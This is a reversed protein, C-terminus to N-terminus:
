VRRIWGWVSSGSHHWSDTATLDELSTQWAEAALRLITGFLPTSTAEPWLDGLRGVRDESGSHYSIRASGLGDLVIAPQGDRDPAETSAWKRMATWPGTGYAMFLSHAATLLELFQACSILLIEGPVRLLNIWRVSSELVVRRGYLRECRA